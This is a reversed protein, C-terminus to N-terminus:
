TIIRRGWVGLERGRMSPESGRSSPERGRSSTERGSSSTERRNSSTESGRDSTGGEVRSSGELDCKSRRVMSVRGLECGDELGDWGVRIMEVGERTM